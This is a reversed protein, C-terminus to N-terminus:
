KLNFADSSVIAYILSKAGFDNAKNYSYVDNILEEDQFGVPRGLGYTLLAKITGKVMKEKYSKLHERMEEFGDFSEKGMLKGQTEIAVKKMKRKKVPILEEERWHGVTNFSEMGFGLPDIISHCSACQPLESHAAISDRVTMTQKGLDIDLQPVNPPPIMKPLNLFKKLVYAGREVPSTRDGNSTMTLVSSHTLLGGRKSSTNLETLYFGSKGQAEMGYFLAMSDDVVSFDSDIINLLSLNKQFLENVFYQSEKISSLKVADNYTGYLNKNVAIEIVRDLEYWQSVFGELFGHFREDAIMRDVQKQLIKPSHLIKKEALDLLEQDPPASWLFYSLRVALERDDVWSRKETGKEIMYLFHGSSLITSLPRILAQKLNKKHSFEERFVKMLRDLYAQEVPKGRFSKRAFDSLIKKAKPEAKALSTENEKPLNLQSKAGKLPGIFEFRDLWIGDKGEYNKDGRKNIKKGAQPVLMDVPAEFRLQTDKDYAGFTVKLENVQGEQLSKFVPIASILKADRKDGQNVTLYAAKVAPKNLASHIRLIYEGKPLLKSFNFEFVNLSGSFYNTYPFLLGGKKTVPMNM